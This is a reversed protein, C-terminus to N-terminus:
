IKGYITYALIQYLLMNTYLYIKDSLSLLIRCPDPIKSNESRM